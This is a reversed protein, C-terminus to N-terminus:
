WAFPEIIQAIPLCLHNPWSRDKALNDIKCPSCIVENEFVFPDSYSTVRQMFRGGVSSPRIVADTIGTSNQFVYEREALTSSTCRLLYVLTSWSVRRGGV